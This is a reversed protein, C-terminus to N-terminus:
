AFRRLFRAAEPAIRESQKLWPMHGGEVVRLEADPMIETMREGIEPPGFPDERGWFLLAPQGIRALQEATLKVEPRAGRLRVLSNLMSLFMDRYDPLCEAAVLLDTLEPTFPHENLMRSQQEIQKESPPQLRTLIRGLPGVSLLRLPFPASSGLALAPCAVHVMAPVRDPREMSLWFTWLSGLSSAIFPPSELALGDLTEVLFRTASDRLHESFREATDTLGFGPMDVVHLRFGDLQGMLPAWMAGPLGLGNIMAVNPGEGAVLVHAHGGISPVDVYRSHAVVGYRNLIRGQAEKFAQKEDM